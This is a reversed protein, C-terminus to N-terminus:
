DRSDSATDCHYDLGFSWRQKQWVIILRQRVFSFQLAPALKRM